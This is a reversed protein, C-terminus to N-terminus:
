ATEGRKGYLMTINIRRNEYGDRFTLPATEHILDSNFIVVRNQRHPINIARAQTEALFRRLAAQDNNYKAFDWSLPAEKDWVTMGGGAPDLNADDPTVWFNVNIAAFDAHMPIGSLRSDYKFAWLKRLTHRGFIGPVALRLEDAVQLLLPCCFGDDLFAGLYGNAYRSEFWVTAELCFRRLSALASPTLFHDVFALGPANQRYDDEITRVDLHPNVAGGPEREAPPRYLMQNYYPALRARLDAPLLTSAPEKVNAPLAALAAEYDAVVAEHGAPIRGRELLYLQQEIDHRLKSPSLKAFCDVGAPVVSRRRRRIQTAAEYAQAAEAVNGSDLLANGLNHWAEVHDPKLALAARYEAIAEELLGANKLAIALNYRSLASQPAAEVAQRLLEIAEATKGEAALLGGLNSLVAPHKPAMQQAQRLVHEAADPRRCRMQVGGLDLHADINAPQLAIAKELQKVAEDTRGLRALAKGLAHRARANGPACAVITELLSLGRAADGDEILLIALLLRADNDESGGALIEECAARAADRNGQNYHRVADATTPM